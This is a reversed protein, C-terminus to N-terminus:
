GRAEAEPVNESRLSLAATASRRIRRASEVPDDAHFIASGAVLIDAGAGAASAATDASIGGDIEVDVRLGREDIIRRAASVKDLSEPIFSQGGWGPHVSMVLLLDIRDLYPEVAEFPTEPNLVLGVRLGLERMQEVLPTPDGLEVHVTCGDAGAKAFDELLDGPNDIMLHCDLFLDTHRRLSAVVPPGITLNPVFHGDMVDVHLLDAEPRIRDIEEALRAFDASLISPAIKVPM